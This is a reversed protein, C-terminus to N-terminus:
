GSRGFHRHRRPPSPPTSRRKPIPARNGRTASRSSAPSARFEISALGGDQGEGALPPPFVDLAPKDQNRWGLGAIIGQHMSIVSGCHCWLILLEHGRKLRALDGILVEM